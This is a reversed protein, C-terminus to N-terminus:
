WDSLWDLDDPDDCYTDYAFSDFCWRGYNIDFGNMELYIARVTLEPECEELFEDIFSRVDEPPNTFRTATLATFRDSQTARLRAELEAAAADVANSRLNRDISEWLEVNM